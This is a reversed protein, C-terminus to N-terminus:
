ARSLGRLYVGRVRFPFFQEVLNALTGAAVLQDGLEPMALVEHDLWVFRDIEALMAQPSEDRCVLLDDRDEDIVLGVADLPPLARDRLNERLDPLRWFAVDQHLLLVARGQGQRGVQRHLDAAALREM